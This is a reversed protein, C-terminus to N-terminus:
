PWPQYPLPRTIGNDGRGSDSTVEGWHLRANKLWWKVDADRKIVQRDILGYQPRLADFPVPMDYEIGAENLQAAVSRTLDEDEQAGETTFQCDDALGAYHYDAIRVIESSTLATRLQGETLLAEQGVCRTKFAPWWTWQL